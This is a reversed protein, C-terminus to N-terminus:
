APTKNRYVVQWGQRIDIYKNTTEPMALNVANEFTVKAVKLLAGIPAIQQQLQIRAVTNPDASSDATEEQIKIARRTIEDKLWGIHTYMKRLNDGLVGAVLDGERVEEMPEDAPTVVTGEVGDRVENLLTIPM